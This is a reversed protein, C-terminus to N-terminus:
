SINAILSRISFSENISYYQFRSFEVTLKKEINDVEISTILKKDTLHKRINELAHNTKSLM